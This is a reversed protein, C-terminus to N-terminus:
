VLKLLGIILGCLRACAIAKMRKIAATIPHLDDLLEFVDVCDLWLVLELALEDEAFLGAGAVCAFM